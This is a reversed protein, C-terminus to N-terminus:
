MEAEALVAVNAFQGEENVCVSFYFCRGELETIARQKTEASQKAFAIADGGLLKCWSEHQLWHQSTQAEQLSESNVDQLEVLGNFRVLRGESPHENANGPHCWVSTFQENGCSKCKTPADSTEQIKACGTCRYRRTTAKWCRGTPTPVQCVERVFTSPNLIKTVKLVATGVQVEKSEAANQCIKQLTEPPRALAKQANVDNPQANRALAIHCHLLLFLAHDREREREREREKERERERERERARERKERMERDGEERRKTDKMRYRIAECVNRWEQNENDDPAIMLLTKANSISLYSQGTKPSLKREVGVAALIVDPKIFPVIGHNNSLNLDMSGTEDVATWITFDKHQDQPQILKFLGIFEEQEPADKLGIRQRLFSEPGSRSPQIIEFQTRQPGFSSARFSRTITRLSRFEKKEDQPQLNKLSVVSDIQLDDFLHAAADFAVVSIHALKESSRDTLILTRRQGSKGFRNTYTSLHSKLTLVGVVAAATKEVAPVGLDLPENSKESTSITVQPLAKIKYRKPEPQQEEEAKRKPPERESSKMDIDTEQHPKKQTRRQGKM